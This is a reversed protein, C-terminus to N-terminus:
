NVIVLAKTPLNKGDIGGESFRFGRRMVWKVKRNEMGGSQLEGEVNECERGDFGGGITPQIIDLRGNAAVLYSWLEITYKIINARSPSWLDLKGIKNTLPEMFAELRRILEGQWGVNEIVEERFQTKHWARLQVERVVHRGNGKWGIKENSGVIVKHKPSLLPSSTTSSDGFNAVAALTARLPKMNAFHYINLKNDLLDFIFWNILAIHVQSFTTDKLDSSIQLPKDNPTKLMRRLAATIPAHSQSLNGSTGNIGFWENGSLFHQGPDIDSWIKLPTEKVVDNGDRFLQNACSIDRDYDYVASEICSLLSDIKEKEFGQYREERAPEFDTTELTTLELSEANQESTYTIYEEQPPSPFFTQPWGGKEARVLQNIRKIAERFDSTAKAVANTLDERVPNCCNQCVFITDKTGTALSYFIQKVRKNFLVCSLHYWTPCSEIDCKIM